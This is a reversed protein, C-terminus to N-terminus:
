EKCGKLGALAIVYADAMDFCIEKIEGTKKLPWDVETVCSVWNFVKQKTTISKDKHDIKIKLHNRANVVGLSVPVVGFVQYTIFDCAGNFRALTNITHASSLGRRFSSLNQEIYIEDIKHSKSIEELSTRVFNCKEIFTKHKTLVIPHILQIKGSDDLCCVGTCSTSIDLGLIKKSTM